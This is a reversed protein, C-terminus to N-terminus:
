IEIECLKYYKYHKVVYKVVIKKLALDLTTLPFVLFIDVLLVLFELVFIDLFTPLLLVLIDSRSLTFVFYTAVLVLLLLWLRSLRAM